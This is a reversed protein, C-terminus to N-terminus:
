VNQALTSVSYTPKQSPAIMVQEEMHLGCRGKKQENVDKSMSTSETLHHFNCNINPLHLTTGVGVKKLAAQECM